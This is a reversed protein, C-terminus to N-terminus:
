GFSVISAGRGGVREVLHAGQPGHNDELAGVRGERQPDVRKLAKM